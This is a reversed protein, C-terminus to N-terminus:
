PTVAPCGVDGAAITAVSGLPGQPWGSALGELRGDPTRAWWSGGHQRSSHFDRGYLLKATALTDGVRLGRASALIPVHRSGYAPRYSYGVFRNRRVFVVLGPWGIARDIGCAHFVHLRETPQHRLLRDLAHIAAAPRMGFGVGAIRRAHLVKHISVTRRSRRALSPGASLAAVATLGLAVGGLLRWGIRVNVRYM